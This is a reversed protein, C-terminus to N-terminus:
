TRAAGSDGRGGQWGGAPTRIGGQDALRLWGAPGGAAM